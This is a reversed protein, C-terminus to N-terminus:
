QNIAGIMIELSSNKITDKPYKTNIKNIIIEKNINISLKNENLTCFRLSEFSLVNIPLTEGFSLHCDCATM